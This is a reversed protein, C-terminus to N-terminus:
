NNESKIFLLLGAHTTCAYIGDIAIIATMIHAHNSFTSYHQLSSLKPVLNGIQVHVYM